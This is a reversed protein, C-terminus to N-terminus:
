RAASRAREERLSDLGFSADSRARIDFYLRLELAALFPLVLASLTAFALVILYTQAVASYALLIPLVLAFALISLVFAALLLRLIVRGLRGRGRRRTEAWAEPFARIELVVTTGILPPGWWVFFVTSLPRLVGFFMAGTSALLMCQFVSPLDAKLASLARRVGTHGVLADAMLVQAALVLASGILSPFLLFWFINGAQYLMPAEVNVSVFIWLFGASFVLAMGPGFLTFLRRFNSRYLHGSDRLVGALNASGLLREDPLDPRQRDSSAEM